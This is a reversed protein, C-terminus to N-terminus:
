NKELESQVFLYNAWGFFINIIRKKWKPLQEEWSNDLEIKDINSFKMLNGHINHYKTKHIESIYDEPIDFGWKKRLKEITREPNQCFDDYVIKISDINHLKLYVVISFNVALWRLSVRLFNQSKLGADKVRWKQPNSYSNVYGRIDRVLFIVKIKKKGLLSELKVLRRPDKSSDLLYDLSIEEENKTQLISQFLTLDDSNSINFRLIEFPCIINWSVKLTESLSYMRSINLNKCSNRIVNNWFNCDKFEEGCTCKRKNIDLLKPDDIEYNYSNFYHVEGLGFVNPSSGILLDLLTSGSHGGGSIYILDSKM